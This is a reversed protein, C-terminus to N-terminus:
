AVPLQFAAVQGPELELMLQNDQAPVRASTLKEELAAPLPGFREPSIRLSAAIRKDAFNALVLLGGHYLYLGMKAPGHLSIGLPALAADRLKQVAADPLNILPVPEGVTLRTSEESYRMTDTCVALARGGSRTQHETLIPFEGAETIASVLTRARYPNLAARLRVFGPGSVETEGVEFRFTWEELRTIPKERYGFESLLHTDDAIAEILGATAIATGGRELFATLKGALEPDSASHATLLVAGAGEPFTSCPVLPMGFMGFYDFVYAEGRSDSEPPKYAYIGVPELGEVLGALVQLRQMHQELAAMNANREDLWNDDSHFLTIEGADALVSQYAQHLFAPPSTNYQDFWAGGMKEGAISRLWRHNFYAQYPQVYEIDPDRTETGAWVVDFNQPHSLVDYGFVHFRDYWQPYKITVKARPNERKAAAVIRERGVAALMDRRFEVWSKNARASECEECRCQTCLFDDVIMEDFVRGALSSIKEIHGLTSPSSYCCMFGAGESGSKGFGRGCLPSIGGAAKIGQRDLFDRARILASEERFGGRFVDLYVKSIGLSRLRRCLQDLKEESSLYDLEAHGTAFISWRLANM